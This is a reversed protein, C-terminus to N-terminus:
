GIEWPGRKFQLHKPTIEAIKSLVASFGANRNFFIVATKTDRWILYTTVLQDITDLFAIEGKWFKCEAVFVNKGDKRILIDTKGQFNFTEGTADGEYVGNLQVLLHSRLAEEDM